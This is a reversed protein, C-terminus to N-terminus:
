LGATWIIGYGAGFLLRAILLASFSPALGQMVAALAMAVGAFLTLRRVGLRDCLAGAPVSIALTALAAAAVLSGEELGSLGFRRVYDPLVPAISMQQIGSLLTMAYLLSRLRGSHLPRGKGVTESGGTM